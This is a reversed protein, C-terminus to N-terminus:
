YYNTRCLRNTEDIIRGGSAIWIGTPVGREGRFLIAASEM